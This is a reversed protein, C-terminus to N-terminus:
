LARLGGARIIALRNVKKGDLEFCWEDKIKYWKARNGLKLCSQYVIDCVDNEVSIFDEKVLVKENTLKVLRSAVAKESIGLISAAKSNNNILVVTDKEAKWRFRYDTPLGLRIMQYRVSNSGLGMKEAIEFVRLGQESLKVIKAREAETWKRHTFGKGM